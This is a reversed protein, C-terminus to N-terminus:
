WITTIERFQRIRGDRTVLAAGHIAATAIILRDAPDAPADTLEAAVVSIDPTIPLAVVKPLSMAQRVWVAPPRHLELRNRRHLMVAEWASIASVGLQSASELADRARKSLFGPDSAWWIWAHTDLVIM